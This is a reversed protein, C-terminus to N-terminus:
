GRDPLQGGHLKGFFHALFLGGLLGGAGLTLADGTARLDFSGVRFVLAYGIVVNFGGWLVNVTASSLGKGPPRAFPSQFRRGMVGSVFHPIANVLFVGGFLHSLAHLWAM